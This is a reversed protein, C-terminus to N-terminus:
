ANGRTLAEKLSIPLNRFPVMLWTKPRSDWACRQFEKTEIINDKMTPPVMVLAADFEQNEVVCVVVEDQTVSFADGCILDEITTRRGGYESLIFQAKAQNPGPLYIGM